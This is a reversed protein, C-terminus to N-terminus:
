LFKTKFKFQLGYQHNLIIDYKEHYNENPEDVYDDSLKKEGTKLLQDLQLQNDYKIQKMKYQVNENQQIQLIENHYQKLDVYIHKFRCKDATYKCINQNYHICPITSLDHSYPCNIGKRCANSIYYKCIKKSKIVKGEHIFPCLNGKKCKGSNYFTCLQHRKRKM